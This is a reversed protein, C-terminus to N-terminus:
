PDTGDYMNKPGEGCEWVSHFKEHIVWLGARRWEIYSIIDDRRNILSVIDVEKIIEGGHCM